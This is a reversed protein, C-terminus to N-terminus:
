RAEAELENLIEGPRMLGACGIRATKPFASSTIAV